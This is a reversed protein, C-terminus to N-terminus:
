LLINSHTQVMFDLSILEFELLGVTILSFQGSSLELSGTAALIGAYLLIESVLVVLSFMDLTRDLAINVSSIRNYLSVYSSRFSTIASKFSGFM